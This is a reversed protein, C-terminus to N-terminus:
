VLRAAVGSVDAGTRAVVVVPDAVASLTHSVRDIMRTGCFDVVAKDTGMRRSRGGALIIGGLPVTQPNV